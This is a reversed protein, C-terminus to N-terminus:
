GFKGCRNGRARQTWEISVRLIRHRTFAIWVGIEHANSFCRARSFVFKTSWKDSLCTLEEVLNESRNFKRPAIDVDAVNQLMARGAIPIRHRIFNLGTARVEETLDFQNLWPHDHREPCKSGLRQQVRAVSDPLEASLNMSIVAHWQHHRVM